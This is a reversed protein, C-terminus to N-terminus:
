MPWQRKIKASILTFHAIQSSSNLLLTLNFAPRISFTRLGAPLM